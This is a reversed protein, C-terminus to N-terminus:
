IRQVALYAIVSKLTTRSPECWVEVDSAMLDVAANPVSPLGDATGMSPGMYFYQM